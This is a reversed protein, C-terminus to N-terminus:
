NAMKIGYSRPREKQMMATIFVIAVLAKSWDSWIFEVMCHVEFKAENEYWTTAVAGTSNNKIIGYMPNASKKCNLNKTCACLHYSKRHTYVTKLMGPPDVNACLKASPLVPTCYHSSQQLNLYVTYCLVKATLLKPPDTGMTNKASQDNETYQLYLITTLSFMPLYFKCSKVYEIVHNLQHMLNNCSGITM